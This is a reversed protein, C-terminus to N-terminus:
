RNRYYGDFLIGLHKALSEDVFEQTFPNLVTKIQLQQSVHRQFRVLKDTNDFLNKM